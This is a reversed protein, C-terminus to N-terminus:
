MGMKMPSSMSNNNNSDTIQVMMVDFGAKKFSEAMDPYIYTNHINNYTKLIIISSRVNFADPEGLISVNREFMVKNIESIKWKNVEVEGNLIKEYVLYKAERYFTEVMNRYRRDKFFLYPYLVWTVPNILLITLVFLGFIRGIRNAKKHSHKYTEYTLLYIEERQPNEENLKEKIRFNLERGNLPEENVYNNYKSKIKQVVGITKTM